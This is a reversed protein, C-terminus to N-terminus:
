IKIKKHGHIIFIQINKTVLKKTYGKSFVNKDRIIRARDNVKFNSANLNTEINKCLLIIPM